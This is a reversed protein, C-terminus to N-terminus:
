HAMIQSSESVDPCDVPRGGYCAAVSIDSAVWLDAGLDPDVSSREVDWNRGGCGRLRTRLKTVSAMGTMNREVLEAEIERRRRQIAEIVLQDLYM